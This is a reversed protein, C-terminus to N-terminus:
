TYMQRLPARSHRYALFPERLVPEVRLAHHPLSLTGADELGLEALELLLEPQRGDLLRDRPRLSARDPGVGEPEGAARDLHLRDDGRAVVDGAEAGLDEARRRALGVQQDDG